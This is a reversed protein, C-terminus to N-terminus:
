QGGEDPLYARAAAAMQRAAEAPAISNLSTNPVEVTLPVECGIRGLTALMRPLDIEGDGPLLRGVMAEQAYDDGPQVLPGDNIQFTVIETGSATELADWQAGGRQFHLADLVIGLHPSGVARVVALADPLTEVASLFPVFELACRLGAPDCAEALIALCDVIEGRALTRDLAVAHITECGLMVACDVMDRVTDRYDAIASARVPSAYELQAIRVGAADAEARFGRDPAGEARRRQITAWFLSVDTFGAAAAARCRVDHTAALLSLEGLILRQRDIM